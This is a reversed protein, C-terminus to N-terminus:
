VLPFCIGQLKWQSITASNKQRAAEPTQGADMLEKWQIIANVSCNRSMAVHTAVDFENLAGYRDYYLLRDVSQDIPTIAALGNITILTPTWHDTCDLIDQQSFVPFNSNVGHYISTVNAVFMASSPSLQWIPASSSCRNSYPGMSDQQQFIFTDIASMFPWIAVYNVDVNDGLYGGAGFGVTDGIIHGAFGLALHIADFDLDAQLSKAANYLYGSFIPDHLLGADTRCKTVAQENGFGLADPLDSGIYLTM